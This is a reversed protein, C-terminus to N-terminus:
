ICTRMQLISVEENFDSVSPLIGGMTASPVPMGRKAWFVRLAVDVRFESLVKLGVERTGCVQRGSEFRVGRGKRGNKKDREVARQEYVRRMRLADYPLQDDPLRPRGRSRKQAPRQPPIRLPVGFNKQGGRSDPLPSRVGSHNDDLDTGERAEGGSQKASSADANPSEALVPVPLNNNLCVM